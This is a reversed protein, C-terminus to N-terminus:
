WSPSIRRGSSYKRSASNFSGFQLGSLREEPCFPSRWRMLVLADLDEGVEEPPGADGGFIEGELDKRWYRTGQEAGEPDLFLHAHPIVAV